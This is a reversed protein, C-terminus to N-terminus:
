GVTDKVNETNDLDVRCPLLAEIEHVNQATPLQTFVRRLYQYPELGNAKATEILSYLNASAHAGRVTDSFLWNKRGVVFPRIANEVLNNDIRLRGDDLYRILKPWQNHLYNLAKGTLTTPPVQPLAQDLWERMQKLIPGAQEQRVEYRVQPKADKFQREIGYLSQIFKMGRWALTSKRKKSQGKIAEDFKRRAHAFCGVQIIGPQAGVPDYGAYGDTQLYGGYGELLRLPVAQSRSPDYDYIVLSEDPPGGRQVWIYSKSQPAKGPEKLVQVTTEDMAVIDYDLIRDWMLNILPQVLRGAQIVWRALNARSLEIGLRKFIQEQRYLPLADVYKCIIIYALLGPSVLSKPIPQVPMSATKITGDCCPCAYKKRIHRIVRVQAPIIDLQETTTEGIVELVAGDHACIRESEPLEHVMDIRPIEPPLAKRGGRKRHHAPVEIADSEKDSDEADVISEAENFLRMQDAWKESSTGFQKHRSLKIQEVLQDILSSQRQIQARQEGLQVQQEQTTQYLSSVLIQLTKVDDPLTPSVREM